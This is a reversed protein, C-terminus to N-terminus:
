NKPVAIVVFRPDDPKPGTSTQLTLRSDTTPRVWSTDQWPVRPHVETVRYEIRGGDPSALFVQDGVRANWLSLFMGVRAHAYLYSNGSEGLVATGPLHFAYGDPTRGAIVDRQVDGEAIPLNIGLRPIQIRFGGTFTGSAPETTPDPTPQPTTEVPPVLTTQPPAATVWVAAPSSTAPSQIQPSGCAVLGAVIVALLTKGM